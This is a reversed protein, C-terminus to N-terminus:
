KRSRGDKIIRALKTKLKNAFDAHDAIVNNTEGPDDLLNFLQFQPVQTNALEELEDNFVRIFASIYSKAWDILNQVSEQSGESSYVKKIINTDIQVAM